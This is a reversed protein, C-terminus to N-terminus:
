ISTFVILDGFVMNCLAVMLLFTRMNDRFSVGLNVSTKM